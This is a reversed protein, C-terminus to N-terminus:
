NKRYSHRSKKLIHIDPNDLLLSEDSKEVLEKEEKQDPSADISKKNSVGSMGEMMKKDWSAVRRDCIRMQEMLGKMGDQFEGPRLPRERKEEAKSDM